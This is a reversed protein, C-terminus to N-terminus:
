KLKVNLTIPEQERDYVAKITVTGNPIEKLTNITLTTNVTAKLFVRVGDPSIEAVNDPNSFHVRVAKELNSKMEVNVIYVGNGLSKVNEDVTIIFLESTSIISYLLIFFLAVSVLFTLILNPRKLNLKNGKGWVYGLIGEHHEKKQFVKNCATVCTECYICDADPNKRPDIHTPCVRICAKCDICQSEKGPIMGVYLTDDDTMVVQFKSYPCVYKCWKFRVLVFDVFIFLFLVVGIIVMTSSNQLSELFNYPSVFYMMWNVTLVFAFFFALFVAVLKSITKNKFKKAYSEIRISFFSQPCLWGCWIRGMLQTTFVFLFTFLLIAIFASFFSAFSVVTNFAHLQLTSVDFRFLSNGNSTKIFPIILAAAVVIFQLLRYVKGRLVSNAMMM